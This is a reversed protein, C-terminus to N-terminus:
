CVKEKKENIIKDAYNLAYELHMKNWHERYEKGNYFTDSCLNCGITKRM